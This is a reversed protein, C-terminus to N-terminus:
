VAWREICKFSDDSSDSANTTTSLSRQPRNGKGRFGSGSHNLAIFPLSNRVFKNGILDLNFYGVLELKLGSLMFNVENIRAEMLMTMAFLWAAV